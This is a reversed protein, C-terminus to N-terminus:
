CNGTDQFVRRVCCLCSGGSLGWISRGPLNRRCAGRTAKAVPACFFAANVPYFSFLTKCGKPGHGSSLGSGNVFFDASYVMNAGSNCPKQGSQLLSSSNTEIGVWLADGHVVFFACGGGEDASLPHYFGAGQDSDFSIAGAYVGMGSVCLFLGTEGACAPEVPSYKMCDAEACRSCCLLRSM